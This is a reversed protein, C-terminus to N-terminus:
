NVQHSQDCRHRRSNRAADRAMGVATRAASSCLQRRVRRSTLVQIFIYRRAPNYYTLDLIGFRSNRNQESSPASPPRAKTPGSNVSSGRPILAYVSTIRTWTCRLDAGDAFILYDVSRKGKRPIATFKLSEHSVLIREASASRGHRLRDMPAFRHIGSWVLAETGLIQRQTQWSLPLDGDQVRSLV